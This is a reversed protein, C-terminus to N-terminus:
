YIFYIFIRLTLWDPTVSKYCMVVLKGFYKDPWHFMICYFGKFFFKFFGKGLSSSIYRYLYIRCIWTEYVFEHFCDIRDCRNFFTLIFALELGQNLVSIIETICFLSSSYELYLFEPKFVSLSVDLVEFINKWFISCLFCFSKSRPLILEFSM